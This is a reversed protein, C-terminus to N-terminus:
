VQGSIGVSILTDLLLALATLALATQLVLPLRRFLRHKQMPHNPPCTPRPHQLLAAGSVLPPLTNLPHSREGHAFEPM